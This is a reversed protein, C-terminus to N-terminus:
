NVERMKVPVMVTTQCREKGIKTLTPFRWSVNAERKRKVKEAV